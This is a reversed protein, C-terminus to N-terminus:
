LARLANTDAVQELTRRRDGIRGIGHRRCPNGDAKGLAVVFQQDKPGKDLDAIRQPNGSRNVLFAPFERRSVEFSNLAVGIQRLNSRCTTKRAAERM